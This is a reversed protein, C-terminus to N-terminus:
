SDMLIFLYSVFSSLQLIMSWNENPVGFRTLAIPLDGDTQM